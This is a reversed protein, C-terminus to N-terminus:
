HYAARLKAGDFQNATITAPIRRSDLGIFELLAHFDESAFYERLAQSDQGRQWDKVAQRVVAAILNSLNQYEDAM